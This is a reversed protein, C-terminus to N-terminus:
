FVSKETAPCIPTETEVFVSLWGEGTDLHVSHDLAVSPEGPVMEPTGLSFTAASEIRSLLAGCIMNSLEGSVEAIQRRSIASRDEGLFNAAISIATAESSLRVWLRGPPSGQFAVEIVISGDDEPPGEVSVVTLFFMKELVETAAEILVAQIGDDPM